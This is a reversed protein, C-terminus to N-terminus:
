LHVLVEGKMISIRKINGLPIYQKVPAGSEKERPNTPFETMLILYDKGLGVVKARYFGSRIQFGVPAHEYSEPNVTTVIKGVLARLVDQFSKDETITKPAAGAAATDSM